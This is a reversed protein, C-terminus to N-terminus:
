FLFYNWILIIYMDDLHLHEMDWDGQTNDTAMQTEGVHEDHEDMVPTNEEKDAVDEDADVHAKEEEKEDQSEDQSEVMAACQTFSIEAEELAKIHLNLGEVEAQLKANMKMSDTYNRQLQNIDAIASELKKEISAVDKDILSTRITRGAAVVREVAGELAYTAMAAVRLHLEEKVIRIGSVASRLQCHPPAAAPSQSSMRFFIQVIVAMYAM